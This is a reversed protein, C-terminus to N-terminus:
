KKKKAQNYINSTFIQKRELNKIFEHKLLKIGGFFKTESNSLYGKSVKYRILEFYAYLDAVQMFPSDDQKTKVMMTKSYNSKFAAIIIDALTAQGYDYHLVLEDYKNLTYGLNDVLSLISNVILTTTDTDTEKKVISSTAVNFLAHKSFLYLTYFLRWREQRQMNTYPQEGRVLNGVHVFHEGALLNDLYSFLKEIAGSNDSNNDVLVFAVCFLPNTHIFQSFNGSEDIFIDLKKTRKMPLIFTPVFGWM